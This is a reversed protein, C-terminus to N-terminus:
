SVMSALVGLIREPEDIAYEQLDIVVRKQELFGFMWSTGSTVVGYIRPLENGRQQNFRQAALMEAVCQGWAAPLDANKAEVLTVIPASVMLQQSSLSILFDCYGNLSESKEVDLEVGSFLSLRDPFQRRLETLINVVIMESRAKETNIAVALPVQEALLTMLIASLPALPPVASFHGTDQEVSLGFRDVVTQLSFESYAM